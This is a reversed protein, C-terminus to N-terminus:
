RNVHSVLLMDMVAFNCSAVLVTRNYPAAKAPDAYLGAARRVAVELQKISGDDSHSAEIGLLSLALILACVINM